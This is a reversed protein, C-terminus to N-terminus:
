CSGKALRYTVEVQNDGDQTEPIQNSPDIVLTIRHDEDYYTSVTFPMEVRFTQGPQLVPFGGVTEQQTTGDSARVDRVSVTGSSATAQSGLNAVDFGISFTQNCVPQSPNLVVVGAVLNATTASTATVAPIPTPPIATPPAATPVPPGQDVPLSSVDGSVTILQAFVWGAGAGYRVKYWDGAPNRALIDSTQGANFSGIPPNFITGPGNRVNV